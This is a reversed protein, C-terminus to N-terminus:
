KFQVTLSNSVPAIESADSVKQVQDFQVKITHLSQTSKEPVLAIVFTSVTKGADIQAASLKVDNDLGSLTNVAQKAQFGVQKVGDTRITENSQNTIDYSIILTTYPGDIDRSNLAMQAMEIAEKTRPENQMQKVETVRYQIQNNQLSVNLQNNIADLQAKSGAASISYDGVKELKGSAVFHASQQDKKPITYTRKNIKGKANGQLPKLETAQNKQHYQYGFYGATSIGTLIVVSLVGIM